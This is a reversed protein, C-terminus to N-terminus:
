LGEAGLFDNAEGDSGDGRHEVETGSHGLHAGVYTWCVCVCVGLLSRETLKTFGYYYDRHVIIAM